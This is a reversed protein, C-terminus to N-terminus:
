PLVPDGQKLEISQKLYEQISLDFSSETGGAAEM